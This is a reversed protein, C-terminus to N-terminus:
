TDFARGAGQKWTTTLPGRLIGRLSAKAPGLAEIGAMKAQFM